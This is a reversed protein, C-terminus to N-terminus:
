GETKENPILSLIKKRVPCQTDFATLINDGNVIYALQLTKKIRIRLEKLSFAQDNLWFTTKNIRYKDNRHRWLTVGKMSFCLLFGGLFMMMAAGLLRGVLFLISYRPEAQAVLNAFEWVLFAAVWFLFVVLVFLFLLGFILSYLASSPSNLELQDGSRQSTAAPAQYPNGTNVTGIKPQSRGKERISVLRRLFEKSDIENQFLRKPIVHAGNFVGVQFCHSNEWVGTVGQWGHFDFMEPLGAGFGEPKIFIAKDKFPFRKATEEASPQFLFKTSLFSLCYIWFAGGFWCVFPEFGALKLYFWHAFSGLFFVLLVAPFAYDGLPHKGTHIEDEPTVSVPELFESTMDLLDQHEFDFLLDPPGQSLLESYLKAQGTAPTDDIVSIWHRFTALESESFVRKPIAEIQDGHHLFFLLDREGVRDYSQWHASVQTEKLFVERGHESFSMIKENAGEKFQQRVQFLLLPGYLTLIGGILTLALIWSTFCWVIATILITIALLIWWYLGYRNRQITNANLCDMCYKKYELSESRTYLFKAQM